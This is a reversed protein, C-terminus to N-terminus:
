FSGELRIGQGWPVLRVNQEGRQAPDRPVVLATGSNAHSPKVWLYIAFAGLAAGTIWGTLALTDWTRVAGQGSDCVRTQECTNRGDTQKNGALVFAGVGGGVLALAGVTAVIPLTRNRGHTEPPPEPPPAVPKVPQQAVQNEPLLPPEVTTIEREVIKFSKSYPQRGPAHVDLAHVGPELMTTYGGEGPSLPKKDVLVEADAIGQPVVVKLTPIRYRLQTIADTAADVVDKNGDARAQEQAGLYDNQADLLRGLNDECLGIHFRIGATMKIAGARQLNDLASAWQQAAEDKAAKAFLDRAVRIDAASPPNAPNAPQASQAFAPTATALTFALPVTTTVAVLWSARTM